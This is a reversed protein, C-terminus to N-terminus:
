LLHGRLNRALRLEVGPLLAVVGEDEFEVLEYTPRQPDATAQDRPMRVAYANRWIGTRWSADWRDESADYARWVVINRYDIQVYGVQIRKEPIRRVGYVVRSRASPSGDIEVYSSNDVDGRM